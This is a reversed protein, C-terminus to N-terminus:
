GLPYSTAQKSFLNSIIFTMFFLLHTNKRRSVLSVLGLNKKKKKRKLDTVSIQPSYERCIFHVAKNRFAELQLTLYNQHLNWMRCAYELKPLIITKYALLKTTRFVFHINRLFFMKKLYVLSQSSNICKGLCHVLVSGQPIGSLSCQKDQNFNTPLFPRCGNLLPHTLEFNIFIKENITQISHRRLIWLGLVQKYEHTHILLCIITSPNLTARIYKESGTNTPTKSKIQIHWSTQLSSM